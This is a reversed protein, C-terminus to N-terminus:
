HNKDSSFGQAIRRASFVEVAPKKMGLETEAREQIYSLSSLDALKNELIQNQRQLKEKKETLKSIEEGQTSLASSVYLQIFGLLVVM